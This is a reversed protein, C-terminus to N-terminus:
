VILWIRGVAPSAPDSALTEVRIENGFHNHSANAFSSAHKGDLLDADLGSGSGDNGAHWVKNTGVYMGQTSDTASDWALAIGSVTTPDEETWYETIDQATYQFTCYRSYTPQEFYLYHYDDSGKWIQFRPQSGGTPIADGLTILVPKITPRVGFAYAYVGQKNGALGFNTQAFLLGSFTTRESGSTQPIINQIKVLKWWKNASGTASGLKRIKIDGIQLYGAMEDGDKSVAGIDAPTLIDAGGIAHTGKHSSPAFASPKGTVESWSPWRTATSPQGTVDAWSHSHTSPTFTSPKSTVESWSPWRTATAPKETVESWSPWRTATAPVGSAIDAWAHDHSSTAAGISIPTVPDIGGIAHTDAHPEIGVEDLLNNIQVQLANSAEILEQIQAELKPDNFHAIRRAM